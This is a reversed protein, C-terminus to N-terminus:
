NGSYHEGLRRNATLIMNSLINITFSFIICLTADVEVLQSCVAIKKYQIAFSFCIQSLQLCCLCINLYPYLVDMHVLLQFSKFATSTNLMDM